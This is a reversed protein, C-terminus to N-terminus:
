DTKMLHIFEIFSFFFCYVKGLEGTFTVIDNHCDNIGIVKASPPDFLLINSLPTITYIKDTSAIFDFEYQYLDHNQSKAAKLPGIVKSWSKDGVDSYDIKVTVDNLSASSVIKGRHIHETSTLIIPLNNNNTDWTYSERPFVHCGKPVFKYEGPQSVCHRTSGRELELRQKKKNIINNNNNNIENTETTFEVATDHSTIFTVAFGTQKFDPVQARESTISVRHSPNEWCFLDTDILVEYHGPLVEDFAYNGDAEASQM